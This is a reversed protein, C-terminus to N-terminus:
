AAMGQTRDCKKTRNVAMVIVPILVIQILIGPWAALIAGSLFMQWTLATGGMGYLLYAVAGWILRGGVMALLLSVYIFVNNKPFIKYFLGSLLGYVALEFAM